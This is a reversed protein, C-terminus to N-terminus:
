RPLNVLALGARVRHLKNVGLIVATFSELQAATRLPGANIGATGILVGVWEIVRQKAAPDDGCVLVTQNSLDSESALDRAAVHHLAGVVRCDPALSQAEQAASGAPVRVAYAGVEDFDLPNVCDVLVTGALTAALDRVVEAHAGYPVALVILGARAGAVADSNTAAAVRAASSHDLQARLADVVVQAGEIRRSGVLVDFGARASRLAIGRGLMGTGGIIAITGARTDTSM